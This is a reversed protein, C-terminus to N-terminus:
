KVMKEFPADMLEGLRASRAQAADDAVGPVDVPFLLQHPSKGLLYAALHDLDEGPCCRGGTRSGCVSPKHMARIWFSLVPKIFTTRLQGEIESLGDLLKVLWRQDDSIHFSLQRFLRL